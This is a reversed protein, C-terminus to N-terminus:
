QPRREEACSTGNCAGFCWGIIKTQQLASHYRMYSRAVHIFIGENDNNNNNNNELINPQTFQHCLALFQELCEFYMYM